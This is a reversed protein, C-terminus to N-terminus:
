VSLLFREFADASADFDFTKAWTWANVRLKAYLAEDELLRVVGAALAQPDGDEVLLGTEGDRVSDRLGDVDYAVAPTGQGAAETVVLGWGEKVSTVCLVQASALVRAKDGAEVRGLRRIADRYPSGSVAAELRQGYAGDAPGAIVLELTPVEKKAIEFARLVDLTRKMPRVSGFALMTPAAPKPADLSAIPALTMGEPIIAIRDEHFGQRLLDNKSSESVTAVKRDALLRLYLPECLWGILNLPFPLEYFWVERALQHIFLANKGKVYLKSFFPITNIEDIVVDHTGKLKEKYLRWAKWYVSWRGGVRLIRFGDRTEESAAGPFGGVVFTVQHGKMVLRKAIEENVTEAGGALPHRRDKWNFWLVRM